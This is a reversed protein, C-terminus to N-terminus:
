QLGEGNRIMVDSLHAYARSWSGAVEPTWSERLGRELSFLLAEGVAPYHDPRVGFGAHHRALSSVMSLASLNELNGVIAALTAIFKRQQEAMDSRFLARLDPAIEFLRAYFHEAMDPSVSWLRDFSARVREVDDASLEPVCNM